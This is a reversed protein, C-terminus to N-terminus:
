LFRYDAKNDSNGSRNNLNGYVRLSNELFNKQSDLFKLANKGNENLDKKHHIVYSAIKVAHFIYEKYMYECLPFDTGFDDLFRDADSINKINQVQEICQQSLVFKKHNIKVNKEINKSFSYVILEKINNDIEYNTEDFTRLNGDGQIFPVSFSVLNEFKKYDSWIGYSRLCSLVNANVQATFEVADNACAEGSEVTISQNNRQFVFNKFLAKTALRNVDRKFGNKFINESLEFLNRNIIMM